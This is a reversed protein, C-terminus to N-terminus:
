LHAESICAIVPDIGIQGGARVGGDKETPAHVYIHLFTHIYIYIYIYIHTCIHTDM